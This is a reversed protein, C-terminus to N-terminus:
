SQIEKVAAIAARLETEEDAHAQAELGKNQAQRDHFAQSNLSEKKAHLVKALKDELLKIATSM